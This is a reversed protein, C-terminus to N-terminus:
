GTFTSVCVLGETGNLLEGLWYGAKGTDKSKVFIIAEPHFSLEGEGGKYEKIALASAVYPGDEEEPTLPVFHLLVQLWTRDYCVIVVFFCHCMDVFHPM